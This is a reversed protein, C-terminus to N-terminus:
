KYVLSGRVESSGENILAQNKMVKLATMPAFEALLGVAYLLYKNDAALLPRVPRLSEPHDGGFLAANLIWVPDLGHAFVGGTGIVLKVDMLDKGRQIFTKGCPLFVEELRGAHRQMATDVATRALVSDLVRDETNEPAYGVDQALRRIKSEIVFNESVGPHYARISALLRKEGAMELISLANYRIGLDGEVTRKRYPDPIGKVVINPRTPAGTAVSHIDTTAGGVDVVILEGLGEETEYGEALLSAGKLVAMPTPMIVNGVIKNAKDLGKAHTIRKMFIDRIKERTPEVNLQDVEPLVNEEVVAFKGRRELVERAETSAMRNGAVIYPVNLQSESLLAANALLFEKNGGDTGGSLLIMDPSIQELESIDETTLGYSYTKVLKAGAGLAAEEAAKVTLAKVLGIAVMRLGGAASSCALIKEVDEIRQGVKEELISLALSFGITIDDEITTPAQAVALLKEREVDFAAIKTYTSGFDVTLVTM